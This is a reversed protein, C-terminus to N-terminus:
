AAALAADASLGVGKGQDFTLQSAQEIDVAGTFVASAGLSLFNNTGILYLADARVEGDGSLGGAITGTNIITVDYGSIGAGGAGAVAADGGGSGGNGGRIAGDNAIKSEFAFVGYGGAGGEGGTVGDGKGSAAGGDGGAILGNGKNVLSSGIIDNFDFPSVSVGDESSGSIVLNPM